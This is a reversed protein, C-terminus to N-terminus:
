KAVIENTMGQFIPYSLAESATVRKQPNWHLLGQLLQILEKAEYEKILSLGLHLPDHRELTNLLSNEDCEEQDGAEAESRLLYPEIQDWWMKKDHDNSGKEGKGVNGRIATEIDDLWAQLMTGTSNSSNNVTSSSPRSPLICYEKAAEILVVADILHEIPITDIKQDYGKLIRRKIKLRKKGNMQFPTDTGLIMELLVIGTSWMDISTTMEDSVVPVFADDRSNKGNSVKLLLTQIRLDLPMYKETMDYTTPGDLGYMNEFFTSSKFSEERKNSDDNDNDNNRRKHSYMASGFDVLKLMPRSTPSRSRRVVINSPKIDRHTVGREHIQKLGNLVNYMIDRIVTYTDDGNSKMKSWEKSTEIIPGNQSYLFHRLSEGEDKFVLWLDTFIQEEKTDKKSKENSGVEFYEVFRAV